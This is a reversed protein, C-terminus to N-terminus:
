RAFHLPRATCPFYEVFISFTLGQFIAQAGSRIRGLQILLRNVRNTEQRHVSDFFGPAAM